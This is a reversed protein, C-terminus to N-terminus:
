RIKGHGAPQAPATRGPYIKAVLQKDSPSLIANRQVEYGDATWEKPIPYIMISKPDYSKRNSIGRDYVHFINRDVIEPIWDYTDACYAYVAPKNWHIGAQPLQHEHVCGIAHGFEHLVYGPWEEAAYNRLGGLDMTRRNPKESLADTGIYSSCGPGTFTIRIDPTAHDGFDFDLNAYRTWESASDIVRAQWDPEGDLFRIRLTRGPRWKKATLAALRLPLGPAPAPVNAPNEQLARLQAEDDLEPPLFFEFDPLYRDSM